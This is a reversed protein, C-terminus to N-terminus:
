IFYINVMMNAVSPSDEFVVDEIGEDDHKKELMEFPRKLSALNSSGKCLLFFNRIAVQVDSQLWASFIILLYQGVRVEPPVKVPINFPTSRDSAQIQAILLLIVLAVQMCFAFFGITYSKIEFPYLMMLSYMDEELSIKLMADDNDENENTKALNILTDKNESLANLESEHSLLSDIEDTHELLQLLEDKHKYLMQKVENEQTRSLSSAIQPNKKMIASRSTSGRLNNEDYRRKKIQPEM